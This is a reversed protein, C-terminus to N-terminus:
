YSNGFVVLACSNLVTDALMPQTSAHSLTTIFSCYISCLQRNHIPLTPLSPPNNNVKLYKQIVEFVFIHIIFVNESSSTMVQPVTLDDGKESKFVFYHLLTGGYSLMAKGSAMIIFQQPKVQSWLPTALSTLHQTCMYM